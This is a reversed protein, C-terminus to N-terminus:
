AGVAVAAEPRGTVKETAGAEEDAQTREAPWTVKVPTPVQVSNAVCTPLVLQSAAERAM